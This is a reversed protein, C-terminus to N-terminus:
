LVNSKEDIKVRSILTYLIEYRPLGHIVLRDLVAGVVKYNKESLMGHSDSTHLFRKEESISAEPVNDHVEHPYHLAHTMMRLAGQAHSSTFPESANKHVHQRLDHISEDDTASRFYEDGNLVYEDNGDNRLSPTKSEPVKQRALRTSRRVSAM